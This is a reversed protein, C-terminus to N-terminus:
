DAFILEAGAAAVPPNSSSAQAGLGLEVFGVEPAVGVGCDEAGVAGADAGVGGAGGELAGGAVVKAFVADGGGDPVGGL